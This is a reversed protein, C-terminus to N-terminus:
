YKEGLIDCLDYYGSPFDGSDILKQVELYSDDPIHYGIVECYDGLGNNYAVNEIVHKLCFNLLKKSVVVSDDKKM